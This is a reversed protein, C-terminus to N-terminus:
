EGNIEHMNETDGEYGCNYCERRGYGNCCDCELNDDVWHEEGCCPCIPTSGIKIKRTSPTADVTPKLYSWGAIDCYSMEYDRYHTGYSQIQNFKEDRNKETKWYNPVGLCEAMIQQFIQRWQRYVEEAGDTGQPYVRGMIFKEEGIHFMCRNIKPELEYDNGDYSKDVTYMIVTSSDGLYSSPGSAHMGEYNDGGDSPRYHGEKDITHCSSWSKGFSMRLIDVPNASIITFRTFKTPSAADGLRAIQKNYDTWKDKIGTETLIKNIVKNFKQGVRVGRIGLGSEEIYKVINEDVLLPQLLQEESLNSITENISNSIKEVMDFVTQMKEDDDKSYCNGNCIIYEDHLIEVRDAWRKWEREVEARTMGRYRFDSSIEMANCIENLRDKYTRCERYSFPRVVVENLLGSNIPNRTIYKILELVDNIVVVDVGRDYENKKVIYGKEPVYDPHKSLLDLVSNGKCIDTRGKANEWKDLITNIGKDTPHYIQCIDLTDYIEKMIQERDIQEVAKHEVTCMSREEKEEEASTILMDESWMWDGDDEECRYYVLGNEKRKVAKITMTRGAYEDMDDNYGVGYDFEGRNGRVSLDSIITIKDGVEYMAM